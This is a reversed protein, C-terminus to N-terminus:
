FNNQLLFPKYYYQHNIFILHVSLYYLKGFHIHLNNIILVIQNLHSLNKIVHYQYSKKFHMM